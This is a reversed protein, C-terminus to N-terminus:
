KKGFSNWTNNISNNSCAGVCDGTTLHCQNLVTCACNCGCPTGQCGSNTCQSSTCNLTLVNWPDHYLCRQHADCRAFALLLGEINM